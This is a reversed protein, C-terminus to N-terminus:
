VAKNKTYDVRIIDIERSLLRSRVLFYATLSVAIVGVALAVSSKVEPLSSARKTILEPLPCSSSNQNLCAPTPGSTPRPPPYLVVIVQVVLAMTMFMWGIQRIAVEERLRDRYLIVKRFLSPSYALNSLLKKFM